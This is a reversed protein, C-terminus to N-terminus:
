KNIQGRSSKHESPIKSDDEVMKKQKSDLKLFWCNIKFTLDYSSVFGVAYFGKNCM